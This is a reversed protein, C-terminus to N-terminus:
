EQPTIQAYQRLMKDFFEKGKADVVHKPIVYEGNAVKVPKGTSQEVTGISDSRGTGPGQLFGGNPQGNPNHMQAVDTPPVQGPPTRGMIQSAAMLVMILKPDFADPLPTMGNQVAFQRLQPYLQPNHMAAEAIRGLTVLEEPTLEGSQMATGVVRQAVQQFQPNRVMQAVQSQIQEPPVQAGMGAVMGGDAFGLQTLTQPSQSVGDYMPGTLGVMGGDAYASASDRSPSYGSGGTSLGGSSSWGGGGESSRGSGYSSYQSAMSMNENGSPSYGTFSSGAGSEALAGESLTSMDEIPAMQNPNFLGKVGSVFDEGRTAAAWAAADTPSMGHAMATGAYYGLSNRSTLGGVDTPTKQDANMKGLNSDIAQNVFGGGPLAAIGFQAAQLFKAETPSLPDTALDRAVKPSGQGYIDLPPAGAGSGGGVPTSSLSTDRQAVQLGAMGASPAGSFGSIFDRRFEGAGLRGM